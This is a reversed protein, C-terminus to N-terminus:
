VSESLEVFIQYFLQIICLRSLIVEWYLAECYTYSKRKRSVDTLSINTSFHLTKM